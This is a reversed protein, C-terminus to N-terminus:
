RKNGGAMSLRISIVTAAALYAHRRVAATLVSQYSEQIVATRVSLEVALFSSSSVPLNSSCPTVDGHSKSNSDFPTGQQPCM